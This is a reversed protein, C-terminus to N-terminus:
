FMKKPCLKGGSRFLLREWTQAILKMSNCITESTEEKQKEKNVYINGTNDVYANAVQNAKRRKCVSHKNSDM